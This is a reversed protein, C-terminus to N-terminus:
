KWPFCGTAKTCFSSGCKGQTHVKSRIRGYKREKRRTNSMHKNGSRKKGKGSGAGKKSAM